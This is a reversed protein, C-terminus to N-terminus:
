RVRVLVTIQYAINDDAKGLEAEVETIGIFWDKGDGELEEEMVSQFAGYKSLRVGECTGGGVTWKGDVTIRGPIKRKCMFM